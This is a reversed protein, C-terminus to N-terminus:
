DYRVNKSQIAVEKTEPRETNTVRGKPMSRGRCKSSIKRPRTKVVRNQKYKDMTSGPTNVVPIPANKSTAFIGEWITTTVSGAREIESEIIHVRRHDLQDEEVSAIRQELDRVQQQLEDVRDNTDEICGRVNNLCDFLYDYIRRVKGSMFRAFDNVSDKVLAAVRDPESTEVAPTACDEESMPLKKAFCLFSVGHTPGPKLRHKDGRRSFHCSRWHSERHDAAKREQHPVCLHSSYAPFEDESLRLDDYVSFDDKGTKDVIQSSALQSMRVTPAESNADENEDDTITLHAELLKKQLKASSNKKETSGSKIADNSMRTLNLSLKKAKPSQSSSNSKPKRDRVPSASKFDDLSDTKQLTRRDGSRNEKSSSAAVNCETKTKTCDQKPRPTSTFVPNLVMTKPMQEILVKPVQAGVVTKQRGVVRDNSKREDGKAGQPSSSRKNSSQTNSTSTEPGNECEHVKKDDYVDRPPPKRSWPEFYNTNNPGTVVGNGNKEIENHMANVFNNPHKTAHRSKDYANQAYTVLTRDDNVSEDTGSHPLMIRSKVTGYTKIAQQRIDEAEKATAYTTVLRQIMQTARYALVAYIAGDESEGLRTLLADSMCRLAYDHFGSKRIQQRLYSGSYTLAGCLRISDRLGTSCTVNLLEERHLSEFPKEIHRGRIISKALRIFFEKNTGTFFNTMATDQRTSSTGPKGYFVRAISSSCNYRKEHFEEIWDCIEKRLKKTADNHSDKVILLNHIGRKFMSMQERLAHACLKPWVSDFTKVLTVYLLRPPNQPSYVKRTYFERWATILSSGSLMLLLRSRRERETFIPLKSSQHRHAICAVCPLGARVHAWARLGRGDLWELIRRQTATSNRPREREFELAKRRRASEMAAEESRSEEFPLEKPEEEM